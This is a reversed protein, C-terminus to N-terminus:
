EFLKRFLTELDIFKLKNTIIKLKQNNVKNKKLQNSIETKM